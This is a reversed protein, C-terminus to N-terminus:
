PICTGLTLFDPPLGPFGSRERAFPTFRFAARPPLPGSDVPRLVFRPLANGVFAFSLSWGTRM